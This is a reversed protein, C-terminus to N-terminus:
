DIGASTEAAKKTESLIKGLYKELKEPSNLSLLALETNGMIKSYINRLDHLKQRNSVSENEELKDSVIVDEEQWHIREGALSGRENEKLLDPLWQILATRLDSLSCPKGLYADMGVAFCRERDAVTVHATLAIIPIEGGVGHEKRIRGTAEYGDVIPMQCDMFIVDFRHSGALEVARNGNEAVTVTGGISRLLHAIVERNVDNDEVLLIKPSRIWPLVPTSDARIQGSQQQGDTVPFVLAFRFVTGEGVVSEVELTGGM